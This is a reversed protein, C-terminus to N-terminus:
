VVLRVMGGGRGAGGLKMLPNGPPLCPAAFELTRIWSSDLLDEMAPIVLTGKQMGALRKQLGAMEMNMNMVLMRTSDHTYM